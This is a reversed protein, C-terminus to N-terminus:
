LVKTQRLSRVAESRLYAQLATLDPRLTKIILLYILGCPIWAAVSLNMASSYGFAEIMVAGLLPGIGKGLNDTLNFVAFVSGRHEPPNVNLLVAKVNPSPYTAILGALFGLLAPLPFSSWGPVSPFEIGLLLFWPIAGLLIACGISFPLLTPRRRYLAEGVFGGILGGLTAGVGFVLTLTTAIEVPFGKQTRYFDVLFFPLVGWPICGPVGQLFSLLNTRNKFIVGLDKLTIRKAYEGGQGILDKLSEESQGRKPERAIILFLPVLLFNPAAALLFAPRWGFSSVMYGAMSQGLLQGIAWAVGIWASAVPRHEPQFYDGIMSFTLPVIGGVGIGTLIRLFLLQEYTKTFYPIGTLFCPIEGILVVLALLYKRSYKDTLYGFILSVLAGLIFFASGVLGIAERDVGYEKVLDEIVPNVTNQDAFLFVSILVLLILTILDRGNMGKM